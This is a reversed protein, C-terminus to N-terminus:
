NRIKSWKNNQYLGSVDKLINNIKKKFNKKEKTQILLLLDDIYRIGKICLDNTLTNIFFHEARSCYLTALIPSLPSGMPIGIIQKLIYNRFKMYSNDIDFFAIAKIQDLTLKKFCRRKKGNYSGTLTEIKGNQKISITECRIEKKYINMFWIITKKLNKM